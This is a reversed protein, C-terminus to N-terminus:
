RMRRSSGNRLTSPSSAGRSTAYADRLGLIFARLVNASCTRLLTKRSPLPVAWHDALASDPQLNDLGGFATFRTRCLHCVAVIMERM